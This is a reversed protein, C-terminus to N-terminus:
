AGMGPSEELRLLRGPQPVVLVPRHAHHLTAMVVSGLLVERHISQGRSGLVIAAANLAKGHEALADAVTRASGSVGHADLAVRTLGAAGALDRAADSAVSAAVLPRTPWLRRATTLAMRAGESGDYGILVPATNPEALTTEPVVLVSVPSHHVTADSVSGLLARLGSRGRSGVILVEPDFEEACRALAAWEGHLARRSLGEAEWGAAQAQRVGERTVGGAREHAQEDLLRVLGDITGARRLLKPSPHVVLPPSWVHAIWAHAGPFLSAGVRIAAAAGKSGDFGVLM